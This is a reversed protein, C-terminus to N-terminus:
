YVDLKHTQRPFQINIVSSDIGEGRPICYHLRQTMTKLYIQWKYHGGIQSNSQWIYRLARIWNTMENSHSFNLLISIMYLSTIM